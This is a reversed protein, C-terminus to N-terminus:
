RIAEVAAPSADIEPVGQAKPPVSTTMGDTEQAQPVNAKIVEIEFSLLSNPPLYGNTGYGM